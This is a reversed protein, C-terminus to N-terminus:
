NLRSDLAHMAPATQVFGFQGTSPILGNSGGSLVGDIQIDADFYVGVMELSGARQLNAHHRPDRSHQIGTVAGSHIPSARAKSLGPTAPIWGSDYRNVESDDQRDITITRVVIAGLPYLVSKVQVVEHSSRGVMTKFSVQVVAPPVADPATWDSFSSAGYGSFDILELPVLAGSAGPHLESNFITDVAPVWCASRRVRWRRTGSIQDVLNRKQM